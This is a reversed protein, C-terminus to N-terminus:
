KWRDPLSNRAPNQSMEPMSRVPIGAVRLWPSSRRRDSAFRGDCRFRLDETSEEDSDPDNAAQWKSNLLLCEIPKGSLGASRVCYHLPYKKHRQIGMFRVVMLRVSEPNSIAHAAVHRGSKASV